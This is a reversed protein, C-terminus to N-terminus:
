RDSQYMGNLKKLEAERGIFKMKIPEKRSPKMRTFYIGNVSPNWYLESSIWQNETQETENKHAPAPRLPKQMDMIAFLLASQETFVSEKLSFGPSIQYM